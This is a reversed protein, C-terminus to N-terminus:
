FEGKYLGRVRLYDRSYVFVVAVTLYLFLKLVDSLPDEVILGGLALVPLTSFDRVTLLAAGALTVLSLAYALYRKSDDVAADTVLILSVMALVFIEPFVPAFQMIAHRM